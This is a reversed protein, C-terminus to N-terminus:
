SLLGPAVKMLFYDSTWAWGCDGYLDLGKSHMEVRQASPLQNIEQFVEREAKVLGALSVKIRVDNGSMIGRAYESIEEPPIVDVPSLLVPKSGDDPVFRFSLNFRNGGNSV